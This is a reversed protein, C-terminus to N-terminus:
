ARVGMIKINTGAGIVMGGVASFAFNRLTSEVTAIWGTHRTGTTQYTNNNNSSSDHWILGDTIAELSSAIFRSTEAGVVPLNPSYYYTIGNVSLEGNASKTNTESGVASVMIKAKRLGFPKNDKDKSIAVVQVDAEVTINAIEEWELADLMMWKNYNELCVFQHIGKTLSAPDIASMSRYVIAGVVGNVDLTPNKATNDNTFEVTVISGGVIPSTIYGQEVKAAVNAATTCVGASPAANGDNSINAIQEDVYGKSAADTDEVPDNVGRLRNGGFDVNIDADTTLGSTLNLSTLEVDGQLFERLNKIADGAAKADAASGEQTLTKDLTASSATTSPDLLIATGPILVFHHVKKALADARALAYTRSDVIPYSKNAVTLSAGNVTNGPNEFKVTLVAGRATPDFGASLSGVEKEKSSAESACTGCGPVPVKVAGTQGNVSEVADSAGSAAEDSPNVLFAVGNQADLVYTHAQGCMAAAKVPNGNRCDIVGYSRNNIVMSPNDATNEVNFAVTVIASPTPKFDDTFISIEKNVASAASNCGGLGIAASGPDGKDGKPGQPGQDGAPGAPGPAGDAGPAGNQGPDGKPLVIQRPQVSTMGPKSPDFGMQMTNIGTQSIKPIYYGGDKGPPGSINAAAPADGMGAKSASWTLNGAEDVAPIWYGGDEGPDGPVPTTTGESPLKDLLIWAGSILMFRYLGATIDGPKIPQATIRDRIVYEIGDYNLRPSEATNSNTFRVALVAGIVPAFGDVLEATKTATGASTSCTAYANAAISVNGTKGNVKAVGAVVNVNGNSDPKSGNISKVAGAAAAKAEDIAQNIDALSQYNYYNNSTTIGAMPAAQVHVVFNFTSIVTNDCIIAVDAVVDGPCTLVQEALRVTINDGGLICAPLNDETKDYIGGTGDPKRFRVVGKQEAGSPAIQNNINAPIGNDYLKITIKRSGADGQKAVVRPAPDRLSMDLNITQVNYM